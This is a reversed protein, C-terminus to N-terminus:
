AGFGSGGIFERLLSTPPVLDPYLSVFRDLMALLREATSQAEHDTPVELLYREAFVKLVSIEYVLSTDFVEQAHHQFPFIHMREGARVKPWRLITEAAPQARGHRDRVIRRLLRLDSAHVRTLRDFPLQVLPCVFIRFLRAAPLREYLRPNLGHIGELMLLDREGLRVLPGGEPHSKGARFDFHATRVEEGRALRALHDTLLDLRLAEFAEFDFDGDADRPTADRDVYYDDLGLGKPNIGNVQLQVRLRRIFTTKGSSSPGAICVIRVEDARAALADAIRGISKEHFGEAVHILESVSGEICRRNLEGVSAIGLTELWREQQETMQVSHRSVERAELAVDVPPLGSDRAVRQRVMAERPAERLHGPVAHVLLLHDGDPVVSLERLRGTSPLLAGNQLVFLEGYSALTVTTQRTTRVLVAADPQAARELYDVAEPVGLRERVLPADEAILTALARQIRAAVDAPADDGEVLVRHAFGLSAGMRLRVGVRAGAELVALGLSRRYIRQGEWHATTLPAIVCASTIAADLSRARGDILAAVVPAGDIADPLLTHVLTGTRVERREGGVWARVAVRRPLGRQRLAFGLSENMRALRASSAVVVHRMMGLALSPHELAFAEFGPQDLSLLTCDTDAIVSATRMTGAVLAIEGFCEGAGLAGLNVGRSEVHARGRAIVFLARDRDGETVIVAGAPVDRRALAGGLLALEDDRFGAFLEARRLAELAEGDM